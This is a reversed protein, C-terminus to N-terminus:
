EKGPTGELLMKESGCSLLSRKRATGFIGRSVIPVEPLPLTIPAEAISVTSYSYNDRWGYDQEFHKRILVLQRELETRTNYHFRVMGIVVWLVVAVILMACNILHVITDTM